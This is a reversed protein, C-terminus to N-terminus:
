GIRLIVKGTGYEEKAAEDVDDHSVLATVSEVMSLRSTELKRLAFDLNDLM